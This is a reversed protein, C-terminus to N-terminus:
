WATSSVKDLRIDLQNGTAKARFSYLELGEMAPESLVKRAIDLAKRGRCAWKEKFHRHDHLRSCM